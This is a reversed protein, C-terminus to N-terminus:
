RPLSRQALYIALLVVTGGAIQTGSLMEGLFVAALIAAVVPQWLLTLASFASPLHALGYAILGQGGLHSVIGLAALILWGRASEPTFDEGMAIGALFLLPASVIGSVAMVIPTPLFNRAQKVSVLYAAYSLATTVALVDGFFHEPSIQASNAVLLVCGALAGIMSLLVGHATKERLFIRAGILVFVPALNTLLTSNAVSTFKLSWHWLALDGAFFFGTGALVMFHSRTFASRVSKPDKRALLWYVPLAFCIRYFATASPGTESLRVFIPAIGIFTAGIM